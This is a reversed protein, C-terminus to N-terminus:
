VRVAGEPVRVKGTLLDHMLGSKIAGFCSLSITVVKRVEEISKLREVIQQQEELLPWVFQLRNLIQSNAVDRGGSNVTARIQQRIRSDYALQAQLFSPVIKKQDLSIRMLNSSMIWGEQEEEIVASRGVDAVRSFVVDGISLQYESLWSATSESVFLLESHIFGGEGLAGITIVPRGFEVWHEGKLSSGFPGTKLHSRNPSRKAALQSLEWERPIWGLPSEKYLHPAESRPPRLEGNETVGRTFLDHMLGAKIKQTKAILAETQEIAEDITTLVQAIDNQESPTPSYVKVKRVDSWSCRPM